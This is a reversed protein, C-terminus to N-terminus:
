ELGREILAEILINGHCLKPACYCGLRKGERELLSELLQPNNYLYTQYKRVVEFRTGDRGIVYPNGWKSGRGIYVDYPEKRLNVVTTM